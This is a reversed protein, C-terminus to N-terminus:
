AFYHLLRYFSHHLYYYFTALVSSVIITILLLLPVSTILQMPIFFAVVFIHALYLEFSHRGARKIMKEFPPKFSTLAYIALMPPCFMTLVFMKDESIFGIVISLVLLSLLNNLNKEKIYWYSLVGLMMLPMRFTLGRIPLHERYYLWEGVIALLIFVICEAIIGHKHVIRLMSSALPFLVYVFIIAPTFWDFCFGSSFFDPYQFLSLGTIQYISQQVMRYFSCDREFTSFLTILFFLYLPFLRKIRNVYYHMLSNKELSAQLGYVSLFLFIDVGVYGRRYLAIWWPSEEVGSTNNWMWVHFLVIWIISVGMLYSRNDKGFVRDAAKEINYQKEMYKSFRIVFICFIFTILLIRASNKLTIM